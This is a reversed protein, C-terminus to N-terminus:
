PRARSRRVSDGMMPASTSSTSAPNPMPNLSLQFRASSSLGDVRERHALRGAGQNDGVGGVSCQILPPHPDFAGSEFRGILVGYLKFAGPDGAVFGHGEGRDAVRVYEAM